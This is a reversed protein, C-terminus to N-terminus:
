GSTVAALSTGVVIADHEVLSTGSSSSSRYIGAKIYTQSTQITQGYARSGDELEQQVGDLWVEVFGSSSDQSLYVRYVLDYWRDRQLEAGEWYTTSGDGSGISLEDDEDLFVAIGPSGDWDSEHLQQIIQWSGDFSSSSPIRIADRIYLDQGEDFTPGSVESRESGTEPEVDGDQVEFHAASGGQFSGSSLLNARSSISQVHWGDFGAEFDGRFLVEPNETSQTVKKRKSTLAVQGGVGPQRKSRGQRRLLRLRTARRAQSQARRAQRRQAARSAKGKAGRQTGASAGASEQKASPAAAAAATWCAATLALACAIALALLRPLSTQGM